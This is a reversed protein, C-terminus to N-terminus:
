GLKATPRLLQQTCSSATVPVRTTPAYSSTTEFGALIFCRKSLPLLRLCVLLWRRFATLLLDATDICYSM